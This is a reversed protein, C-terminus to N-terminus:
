VSINCKKYSDNNIRFSLMPKHPRAATSCCQGETVKVALRIYCMNWKCFSSLVFMYAPLYAYDSIWDVKHFVTVDLVWVSLNRQGSMGWCCVNIKRRISEVVGRWGSVRKDRWQFFLLFLFLFIKVQMGEWWDCFDIDLNLAVSIGHLPASRIIKWLAHRHPM